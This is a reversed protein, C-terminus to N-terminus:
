EKALSIKRPNEEWDECSFLLDIGPAQEYISLYVVTEDDGKFNLETQMAAISHFPENHEKMMELSTIELDEYTLIIGLDKVMLLQEYFYLAAEANLSEFIIREQNLEAIIASVYGALRKELGLDIYGSIVQLHNAFDHRMRRLLGVMQEADM